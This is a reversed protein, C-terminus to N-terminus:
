RCSILFLLSYRHTEKQGYRLTSWPQIINKSNEYYNNLHSNHPYMEEELQNIQLETFDINKRM